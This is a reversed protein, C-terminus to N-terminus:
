DIPTIKYAVMADGKENANWFLLYRKKRDNPYDFEFETNRTNEIWDIEVDDGSESEEFDELEDADVVAIDIKRNSAVEILVKKFKADLPVKRSDWYEIDEALQIM